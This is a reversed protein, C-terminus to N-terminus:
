EIKPPSVTKPVDVSISGALSVGEKALFAELAPLLAQLEQLQAPTINSEAKDIAKQLQFLAGTLGTILPLVAVFIVIIAGGIFLVGVIVYGIGSMTIFSYGERFLFAAFLAVIALIAKASASTKVSGTTVDVKTLKVM